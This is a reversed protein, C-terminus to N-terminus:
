SYMNLVINRKRSCIEEVATRLFFLYIWEIPYSFLFVTSVAVEWREVNWKLLCIVNGAHNCEDHIHNISWWKQKGFGWSHCRPGSWAIPRGPARKDMPSWRVMTAVVCPMWLLRCRPITSSSSHLHLHRFTHHSSKTKTSQINPYRNCVVTCDDELLFKPLEREDGQSSSSILDDGQSSSTILYPCAPQCCGLKSFTTTTCVRLYFGWVSHFPQKVHEFLRKAWRIGIKKQM